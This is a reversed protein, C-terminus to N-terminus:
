AFEHKVLLLAMIILIMIIILLIIITILSACVALGLRCYIILEFDFESQKDACYWSM